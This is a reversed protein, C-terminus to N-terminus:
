SNKFHLYFISFLNFQFIGLHFLFFIYQNQFFPLVVITKLSNNLGLLFISVLVLFLGIFFVLHTKINMNYFSWQTILMINTLEFLNIVKIPLIRWFDIWDKLMNGPCYITLICQILIPFKLIQTAKSSSIPSLYCNFQLFLLCQILIPFKM